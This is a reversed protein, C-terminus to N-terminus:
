QLAVVGCSHGALKQRNVNLPGCFHQGYDSPHTLLKLNSETRGSAEAMVIKSSACFILQFSDILHMIRGINLTSPWLLAM